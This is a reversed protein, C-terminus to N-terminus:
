RDGALCAFRFGKSVWYPLLDKLAEVCVASDDHFLIIDGARVRESKLQSAIVLPDDERHDGSDLSWHICRYGRRNLGYLLPISWHGQPSRFLKPMDSAIAGIEEQANEAEGIQDRISLQGFKRHNLSHNGFAHGRRVIEEGIRPFERLRTGVVFFTAKADYKELLSLLEGTVDHHPGDDFTLFLSDQSRECIQLPRRLCAAAYARRVTKKIV